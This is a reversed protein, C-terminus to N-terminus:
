LNCCFFVNWHKLTNPPNPDWTVGNFTYTPVRTPEDIRDSVVALMKYDHTSNNNYLENMTSLMRTYHNTKTIEFPEFSWSNLADKRLAYDLCPRTYICNFLYGYNANAINWVYGEDWDKKFWGQELYPAADHYRDRYANIYWGIPFWRNSADTKSGDPNKLIPYYKTNPSNGQSRPIYSVKLQARHAPGDEKATISVNGSIATMQLMFGKNLIDARNNGFYTQMINTVEITKTGTSIISNSGGIIATGNPNIGAPYVWNIISPATEKKLWTATESWDDDVNRSTVSGSFGNSITKVYYDISASTIISNSPLYTDWAYWALLLRDGPAWPLSADAGYSIGSNQVLVTDKAPWGDIFLSPDIVLDQYDGTTIDELVVSMEAIGAAEKSLQWLQTSRLYKKDISKGYIERDDFYAEVPRLQHIVKGDKEFRVIQKTLIWTTPTFILVRM